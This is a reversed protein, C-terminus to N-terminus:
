DPWRQMKLASQQLHVSQRCCVHAPFHRAHLRVKGLVVHIGCLWQQAQLRNHPIKLCERVRVFETESLDFLIKSRLPGFLTPVLFSGSISDVILPSSVLFKANTRFGDLATSFAEGRVFLMKAPMTPSVSM